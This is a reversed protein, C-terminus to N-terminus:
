NGPITEVPTETPVEEVVEGPIIDAIVPITSDLEVDGAGIEVIGYKGIVFGTTDYDTSEGFRGVFRVTGTKIRTDIQEAQELTVALTITAIPDANVETEGDETTSTSTDSHDVFKFGETTNVSFVLINQMFTKSYTYSEEGYGSEAITTGTATYLLDIKDGSKINGSFGDVFTIPLSIKRYKSLDMTDFVNANEIDILQDTYIYQGTKINTQVHKGVISSKDLAFGKTIASAPISISKIDDATVPYNIDSIDRTYVFVETLNVQKNTYAMIFFVSAIILIIQLALIIIKKKKM